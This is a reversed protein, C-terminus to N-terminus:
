RMGEESAVKSREPLKLSKERNQLNTNITGATSNSIEDSIGEMVQVTSPRTVLTIGDNKALECEKLETSLRDFDVIESRNRVRIAPSRRRLVISKSKVTEPIDPVSLDQQTETAQFSEDDMLLQYSKNLASIDSNFREFLKGIQEPNENFIFFLSM